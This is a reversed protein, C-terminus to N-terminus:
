LLEYTVSGYVNATASLNIVLNGSADTEMFIGPFTNVSMGGNAPFGMAAIKITSAGSKLAVNVAASCVLTIGYVRVKEDTVGTVVTTDGSATATIAAQRLGRSPM